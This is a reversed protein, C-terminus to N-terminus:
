SPSPTSGNGTKPHKWLKWVGAMAFPEHGPITIEYKTKKGRAPQNSKYIADAPVLGRGGLFADKWFTSQEIGESRANFLLRDPLQFGWRMLEIQREGHQNLYVVPQTSQPSIDDEEDFVSEDLRATVHLAEAIRQKDSKRKYRGRM